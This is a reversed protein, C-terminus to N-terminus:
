HTQRRRTMYIVGLIFAFILLASSIYLVMNPDAFQDVTFSGAQAGGVYVSYTGPENRSIIFTVPMNGGSNVTVGQGSEEQGNVYLIVRTSGNVTGTNVVNATVTVPTGPAVKTSSLSASRVSVTPLSVPGETSAATVGSMSSGHLTIWSFFNFNDTSTATGAPTTVTVHGPAGNGVTATIQTASNVTFASAATGGFSVSTAGAFNTGTIIVQTGSGGSTPTFSTITPVPSGSLIKAAFGDMDASYKRVPSGWSSDSQGAVYVNGSGDVAIADSGDNASGGLFTNWTLSGSNDLKAAFAGKSYSGWPSGWTADSQGGVYINGSSDVAIALGFDNGSGGLFTNWTLNGSRDLKAAFVDNDGGAFARVPSGWTAPGYGAVYINGSGDLGISYASDDGNGGLFTNWTLNGSNDLKAVFADDGSANHARVPSGWTSASYGAVYANGSGDVAIAYGCDGSMAGLFTNWILNGSSDLKAAFADNSYTYWPRVPSGWTDDSQGAVYVNGSGDVAIGYCLDFDSGGLFTNWIVTGTAGNLKAAFGDMGGSYIRVPTGWTTDNYGAVCVNGSGDLAISFAVDYGKGWSPTGSLPAPATSNPSSPMGTESYIARYPPAGPPRTTVPLMSTAAATWLSAMVLIM